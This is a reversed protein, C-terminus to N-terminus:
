KILYFSNDVINTEPLFYITGLHNDRLTGIEMPNSVKEYSACPTKHKEFITQLIKKRNHM